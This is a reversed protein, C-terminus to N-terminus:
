KDIEYSREQITNNRNSNSTERYARTLTLTTLFLFFFTGLIAIAVSTIPMEETRETTISATQRGDADYENTTTKVMSRKVNEIVGYIPQLIAAVVAVPRNVQLM